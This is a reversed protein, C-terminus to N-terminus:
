FSHQPVYNTSQKNYVFNELYYININEKMDQKNTSNISFLLEKVLSFLLEKITKHNVM